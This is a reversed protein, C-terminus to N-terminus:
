RVPRRDLLRYALEIVAGTTLLAPTGATRAPATAMLAALVRQRQEDLEPQALLWSLLPGAQPTEQSALLGAIAYLVDFVLNAEQTTTALRLALRLHEVAVAEEGLATAIQGLRCHSDAEGSLFGIERSAALAREFDSRAAAHNGQAVALGGLTLLGQVRGYPSDLAEYVALGRTVYAQAAPFDGLQRAVISLGTLLHAITQLDGAAEALVLGEACYAEAGRLNGRYFCLGALELLSVAQGWGDALARRAALSALLQEEAAAYAGTSAYVQGLYYRANAADAPAELDHLQEQARLLLTRAEEFRSLTLLFKAERTM